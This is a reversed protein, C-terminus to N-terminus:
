LIVNRGIQNALYERTRKREIEIIRDADEYDIEQDLINDLESTKMIRQKELCLKRLLDILKESNGYGNDRVFSVFPRHTIISLITGHFTDTIVYKAHQFYAILQFPNCDIYKDCCEQIGGFCLVKLMKKKAYNRIENCEEKTFRGSYGYLIMYESETVGNPLEKCRGIYDYVLVPDFHYEPKKGTLKEIVIGSNDDRVSIADFRSLWAKVQKDVGHMQMKEITTNGFSAAYTILRKARNGEGFLEPSFGVNVNDQVCNFVEDSGIILVDVEPAYNKEEGIGLYPLYRKAYNKKYRIYCIRDKLPAQYKIAEVAKNLKRFIGKSSKASILVKGSHYDVFEVACGLEQLICKLGYAQLFSGYNAIRQMSMIGVRIM